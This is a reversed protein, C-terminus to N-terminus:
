GGSPECPLTAEPGTALESGASASGGEATAMAETGKSAGLLERRAEKSAHRLEAIGKGLSGALAPLRKPGLVLLGIALIVLLETMGIGFM